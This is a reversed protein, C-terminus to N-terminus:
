LWWQGFHAMAEMTFHYIVLPYGSKIPIYKPNYIRRYVLLEPFAAMQLDNELRFIM